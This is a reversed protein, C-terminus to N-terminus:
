FAAANFVAISRSRNVAISSPARVAATMAVRVLTESAACPDQAVIKRDVPQEGLGVAGVLQYGLRGRAEAFPRGGIEARNGIKEHAGLELVVELVQGFRNPTAAHTRVVGVDDRGLIRYSDLERPRHHRHHYRRRMGNGLPEGRALRNFDEVDGGAM